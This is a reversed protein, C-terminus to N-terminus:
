QEVAPSPCEFATKFHYKLLMTSLGPGSIPKQHSAVGHSPVSGKLSPFPLPGFALFVNSKSLHASHHSEKGVGKDLNVLSTGPAFITNGHYM